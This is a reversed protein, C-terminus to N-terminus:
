KAGQKAKAAEQLRKTKELYAQVFGDCVSKEAGCVVNLDQVVKGNEERLQRKVYAPFAPHGRAAFFTVSYESPLSISVGNNHMRTVADPKESLTQLETMVRNLVAEGADDETSFAPTSVFATSLGATLLVPVIYNRILM